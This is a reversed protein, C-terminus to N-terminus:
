CKERVIRVGLPAKITGDLRSEENLTLNSCQIDGLVHVGECVAVDGGSFINGHIENNPAITIDGEARISGFITNGTDISVSEARINGHLRCDSGISMSKPVVFTEMNLVSNSPIILPIENIEDEDYGFLKQMIESIEEEKEIGLLTVLYLVLYTLVPLPNRISIWGKAEFGKEIQVNDGIDLDGNVILRGKIKVGEGLYADETAYVDGQIECFNDIRVDGEAHIDGNIMSFECVVIENGELGYDIKCRDGIIIIRDTKLTHEQLETNDPLICQEFWGQGGKEM